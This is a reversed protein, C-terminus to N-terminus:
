RISISEIVVDEVPRDVQGPMYTEVEAIKDVTEMGKIVQGFITYNPPLPVDKHMIFFQSGNTNPGSNAMALIGRKYGNKYIEDDKNIEDAFQYGPGGTGWRNNAGDDKSLPDGGQVMFGKIVRHFKTKNYFDSNSLKIFNAVTNPAKEGFLEIEIEGMNTKLIATTNIQSMAAINQNSLNEAIDSAKGTAYGLVSIFIIAAALFLDVMFRNKNTPLLNM